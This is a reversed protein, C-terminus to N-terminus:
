KLLLFVAAAAASMRGGGGVNALVDGYPNRGRYVRNGDV